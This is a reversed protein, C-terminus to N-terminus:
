ALAAAEDRRMIEAVPWYTRNLVDNAEPETAWGTAERPDKTYSFTGPAFGPGDCRLVYVRGVRRGNVTGPYRYRIIYDSM